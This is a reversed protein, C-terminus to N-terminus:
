IMYIMFAIIISVFVDSIYHVGAMIRSICILLAIVLAFIGLYINIGFCVLAIIMASVAHRSPFSEGKKHKILPDIEMSEYPRKRNVIKRLITVFLFASLPKIITILLLDKNVFFLYILICPYLGFTIYPFYQCIYIIIKKLLPNQHIYQLLSQYYKEM